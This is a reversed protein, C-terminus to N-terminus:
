DLKALENYLKNKHICNRNLAQKLLSYKIGYFNSAEKICSFILGSNISKVKIANTKNGLIPQLGTKYAHTMNEKKNCWELNNLKNNSKVGDIHNVEIQDEKCVLFNIAVLRHVYFNRRGDKSLSAIKYGKGNDTLAIIRSKKNFSKGNADKIVRNESKVRGFNSVSYYGEYGKVPKWIEEM